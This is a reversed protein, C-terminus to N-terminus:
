ACAAGRRCAPRLAEFLAKVKAPDKRGPEAEVGSGVDIATPASESRRRPRQCAQDRRRSRARLIRDGRLWAGTSRRARGAAAVTRAQTDYLIRDAGAREPEVADAVACRPGSRATSRSTYRSLRGTRDRERAVAGRRPRTGAGDQRRLSRGSGPFRRGDESRERRAAEAIAPRWRQCGRRSEGEAFILGAHTAGCNAALRRMKPEDNARLDEGAWSVNGAGGARHQGIGDAVLWRSICRRAGVLREVDRRDRIGSESIVIRDEPVRAALRETVALDTKLTRLDRNNIGIIAAGLALARELEAEDHVEVIVDMNFRQAEAM